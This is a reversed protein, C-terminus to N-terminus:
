QKMVPTNYTEAWAKALESMRKNYAAKQARRMNEEAQKKVEIDLIQAQLDNGNSNIVASEASINAVKDIAQVEGESEKQVIKVINEKSQADELQKELAKKQAAKLEEQRQKALKWESNFWDNASGKKGHFIDDVSGVRNLWVENVLNTKRVANLADQVTRIEGINAIGNIGLGSSSLMGEIIPDSCLVNKAAEVGFLGERNDWSFQLLTKVDLKKMNIVMLAFRKQAETLISATTIAQQIAQEVNVADFVPIAAEAPKPMSVISMSLCVVATIATQKWANFM